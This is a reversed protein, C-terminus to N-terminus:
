KLVVHERETPKQAVGSNAHAHLIRQLQEPPTLTANLSGCKRCGVLSVLKRHRRSFVRKVEYHPDVAVAEGNVEATEAKCRCFKQDDKQIAAEIKRLRTKEGNDPHAKAAELFHGQMELGQALRMRETQKDVDPLELNARAIEELQVGRAILREEETLKGRGFSARRIDQIQEDAVIQEQSRRLFLPLSSQAALIQNVRKEDM